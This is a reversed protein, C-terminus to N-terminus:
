KSLYMSKDTYLKRFYPDELDKIFRISEGTSKMEPGLEKPVEPFKDYSFVPEKIAYGVLKREITFDKLKNVGLMVKAAINIYPVDYAKAIFPVTRSARPNAEIVYVKEDKVAFQINLLGIVNLAKAIKKSYTEMSNMVTESLSFPPLVAFSDGSHIGAPEIHEMLGVIHVDEGDCISDSETEEARDLFHDILVRNGPLDGLLKVVAKELDEDNIVISMGQGGLVYSPRVLVPYGVENAVVIAEEANEAVGYKPYPIDLEKLLDSFRGRDEAIDMDNYSTGIIKIGNEHLKEAMKLATQGGLQVIVGVPKELDIIERVHEWFVPEFYLKDAMNFDTSVTEPNCNIMIAEFGSEKAALLGHVCSYDFEIGQGIRNPGSGLVIVKKNDTPISENEQEFTSYFYPTQAPFEAACTDVMKYVRSIGMAKRRDYVEDETVNGLLYAIQIDSFGKQKLNFFFDKPINNLSYRKLETELYVLEQIQALFWKDIKTVKRISELPVGMSMADKILFLRNWSAHELGYMIEDISRNHKGDAGLGARGIELSQCAKQLAEIFTRGIAMVEGVSKMQLGLEMNAGKFKDFNWRPVKVIVYDLTPEFYASTTKTIQNEIEDLNYGIALKSAIKAIPYGTAKSALASSRSVRPNIEIAIIDDNDPNVSFQVNCGGAFTGIARMMKIAQNRMEQYCTDSLTMAPAVTISDGTHIGMPDFNEISCIIIVNDNSDRLLELEYEKWGLVAKEVLVEHTPSAELGRKLAADFEEKKHVFGGGSGGLTYSPRIVLPYGIQQAAEKGELFSNAIKSPAVGVGIDVMLQRFAERNETKEIAAVDVGIVRVGHKEWVGREEAEKCLNLATQGGMTPLVADINREILIQEISDVTLPRLYVHDAIVKDTMITAPNSNIISVEIGEEKLSLAAQSGSYDFECAQGIIIPGSGIILVSRISTDKPM